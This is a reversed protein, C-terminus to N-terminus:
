DAVLHVARVPVRQPGADGLAALAHLPAVLRRLAHERDRLHDREDEEDGDHQEDARGHEQDRVRDPQRDERPPALDLHHLEHTRRVPEDAAREHEFPEELADDARHEGDDQEDDALRDRQRRDKPMQVRRAVDVRQREDQVREREDEGAEQEARDARSEGQPPEQLDSRYTPTMAELRWFRGDRLWRYSRRCGRRLGTASSVTLSGCRAVSGSVTTACRPGVLEPLVCSASRKRTSVPRPTYAAGSRMSACSACRRSDASIPSSRTPGTVPSSRMLGPAGITHQVASIAGICPSVSTRSSTCHASSSSRPEAQVRSMSPPWYRCMRRSPATSASGSTSCANGFTSTRKKSRFVGSSHTPRRAMVPSRGPVTTTANLRRATM